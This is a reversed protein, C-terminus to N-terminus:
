DLTALQDRSYENPTEDARIKKPWNPDAILARGVAIMDFEGIDIRRAAENWNKEVSAGGTEHSQFLDQAMGVGGVALSPKGTLKKAWGALSLDDDVEPFGPVSFYLTSAHFLDVGADSLAGLLVGLEDPTQAIRANFDQQKWQGFRFVLPVDPGIAERVARVLEVGFTARGHMDGGYRDSRRNTEGWFFSDVLYGSAGHIEIGDFGVEMSNAASRAFGAIVDAIEEETMPRTPEIVQSMYEDSITSFRGEPGWLGSPRMSPADPWPGTGEIRFPGHHWLQPFILGGEAHVAECVKRWGELPAEGYLVPIGQWPGSGDGIAGVHDIGAGETILLGTGGAARAAYYNAVGDHPTNDPSLYRTMPPMALRNPITLGNVTIPRFLPELSQDTM